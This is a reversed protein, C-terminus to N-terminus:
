INGNFYNSKDNSEELCLVYYKELKEAECFVDYGNSILYCSIDLRGMNQLNLTAIAWEDVENDLSVFGVNKTVAVEETIETSFICPLSNAQAEIGVVPLGEYYSPMVFCDMANYLPIIDETKGLDIVVESLGLREIKEFIKEKLSGYGVLLLRAKNNKKYVEDFIDILFDHNKQYEFRGIHGIVFNDELGLKQRTENRLKKDFKYKDLDLANRFVACKDLNDKGYLWEAAYVSNAAIHTPSLLAFKKLVNKVKTKNEGDHGTSLNEAIRVPVGALQAALMPFVNLTNLYGHVIKFKQEKFIKYCDYIHKIPNKISSVKFIRAGLKEFESYNSDFSDEYILLDFQFKEKDIHKYYNLIVSKIGGSTFNGMVVAVRIPETRV